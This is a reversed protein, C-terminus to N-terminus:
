SPQPMKEVVQNEGLLMNMIGASQEILAKALTGAITDDAGDPIQAMIHLKGDVETIIVSCKVNKAM